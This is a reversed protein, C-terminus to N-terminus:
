KGTYPQLPRIATPSSMNEAQEMTYQYMTQTTQEPPIHIGYLQGPEVGEERWRRLVPLIPELTETCLFNYGKGNGGHNRGPLLYYRFRDALAESGGFRAFLRDCYEIGKPFPVLPDVSGSYMLLKGGRAFFPELAVSDADMDESLLEKVYRWDKGFDFQMPVKEEGFAWIFPYYNHLEEKIYIELGGSYGESGMPLGCYIQKGTDPEVPGRYVAELANRQADTLAPFAQQLGQLVARITAEDAQPMSVFQDGPQGDMRSQYFGTVFDSIERIEDETFLPLGEPTRMQVYNWLFYTHLDLRSNAPVGALIGDYDEPFCQAEKMAQQGGTSTGVFYSYSQPKGYCSLILEKAATTMLHTARWGFDKWVDPNGIGSSAGRSTGMDTNAVAYGARIFAALWPYGVKGAIGGNGTGAFIGNWDEPLWVETYILSDTGPTMKLVVRYFNPLNEHVGFPTDLKGATEYIVSLIETDPLVTNKLKELITMVM